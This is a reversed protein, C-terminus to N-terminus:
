LLPFESRSRGKYALFEDVTQFIRKVGNLNNIFPLAPCDPHVLELIIADKKLRNFAADIPSLNRYNNIFDLLGSINDKNLVAIAMPFNHDLEYTPKISHNQPCYGGMNELSTGDKFKLSIHQKFEELTCGVIELTRQDYLINQEDTLDEEALLNWTTKVAGRLLKMLRYLPEIDYRQRERERRSEKVEPTRQWALIEEKNEVYYAAQRALIEEKNEVYYAAQRALIEEKNEVYHAAMYAKREPTANYAIDKERIEERNEERYVARKAKREPTANYAAQRAKREPTAEYAAMKAKREPTVGRRATMAANIEKRVWGNARMYAWIEATPVAKMEDTAEKWFKAKTALKVGNEDVALFVNMDIM